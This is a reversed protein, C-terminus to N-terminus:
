IYGVMKYMAYGVLEHILVTWREMSESNPILFERLRYTKDELVYRDVPYCDIRVGQKLFCGEARRLHISSTILLCKGDYGFKNLLLATQEANEHTNQSYPDVIIDSEPIGLGVLYDRLLLSELDGEKVLAGEGGSLIIKKIVGKKYLNLTQIFRDSSANFELRDIHSDYETVGGLMIGYEYQPEPTSQSVPYEWRDMFKLSIYSNSFFFFIFVFLVTAIKRLKDSKVLLMIILLISLWSYPMLLFNLLKSLVYFM